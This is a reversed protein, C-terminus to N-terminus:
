MQNVGSEVRPGDTHFPKQVSYQPVDCAFIRKRTKVTLGSSNALQTTPCCLGAATPATGPARGGGSIGNGPDLSRIGPATTTPGAARPAWRGTSRSAGEGLAAVSGAAVNAVAPM